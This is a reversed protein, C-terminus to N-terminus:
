LSLPSFCQWLILLVFHAAHLTLCFLVASLLSLFLLVYPMLVFYFCLFSILLVCILDFCCLLLSLFFLLPVYLIMFCFLTFLLCCLCFSNYMCFLVFLFLVEFVLIGLIIKHLFKIMRTYKIRLELAVWLLPPSEPAWGSPPPM